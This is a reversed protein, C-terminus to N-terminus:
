ADARERDVKKPRKISLGTAVCGLIGILVLFGFTDYENLFVSPRENNLIRVVDLVAVYAYSGFAAWAIVTVAAWGFLTPYFIHFICIAAIPAYLFFAGYAIGVLALLAAPVAALAFLWKAEQTRRGFIDVAIVELHRVDATFHAHSRRERLTM